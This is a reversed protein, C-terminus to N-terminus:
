LTLFYVLTPIFLVLCTVELWKQSQEQGHWCAFLILPIQFPMRILADKPTTGLAEQAVESTYLYINAPFVALLLAILAMAAYKRTPKNVLLLALLLEFFGSLYVLEKHWPIYDPMISLFFDVDTFHKLGVSLYLLAMIYITALKIKQITM